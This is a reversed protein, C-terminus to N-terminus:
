VLGHGKSYMGSGGAYKIDVLDLLFLVQDVPLLGREVYPVVDLSLLKEKVVLSGAVHM